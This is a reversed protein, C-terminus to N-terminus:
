GRFAKGEYVVTDFGYVNGSGNSQDTIIFSVTEGVPIVRWIGRRAEGGPTNYQENATVRTEETKDGVSTDLGGDSVRVVTAAPTEPSVDYRMAHVFLDDAVTSDGPDANEWVDIDCNAPTTIAPTEIYITGGSEVPDFHVIFQEGDALTPRRSVRYGEGNVIARDYITETPTFQAM